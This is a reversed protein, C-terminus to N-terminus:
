NTNGCDPSVNMSWKLLQEFNEEWTFQRTTQDVLDIETTLKGVSLIESMLIHNIGNLQEHHRMWDPVLPILGLKMANALKMPSRGRNADTNIYPLVLFKYKKMVFFSKDFDIPGMFTVGDPLKTPVKGTGFLHLFEFGPSLSLKEIFEWDIRNDLSGIYIMGHHFEEDNTLKSVAVSIGNPIVITNKTPLELNLLIFKNTVAIGYIKPLNKYILSRQRKDSIVDTLRLIIRTEAKLLDVFRLFYPQDILVLDYESKLISRLATGPLWQSLKVQLPLLVFPVRSWTVLQNRDLRLSEEKGFILNLLFHLPSIPTSVHLIKHGQALAVESLEHSGVRYLGGYFTHSLFLIKV